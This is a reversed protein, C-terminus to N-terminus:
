NRKQNQNYWSMWPEKSKGLDAGVIERLLRVAEDKTAADPHDLQQVLLPVAEKFKHHELFGMALWSAWPGSREWAYWRPYLPYVKQFYALDEARPYNNLGQQICIGAQPGYSEEASQWESMSALLIAHAKPSNIKALACLATQWENLARSQEPMTSNFRYDSLTPRAKEVLGNLFPVCDPDRTDGMAAALMFRRDDPQAALDRLTKGAIPGTAALSKLVERWYWGNQSDALFPRLGEIRKQPDSNNLAALYRGRKELAASIVRDLDQPTKAQRDQTLGYPGPNMIQYYGLVREDYLWKLGSGEGTVEWSDPRNRQLFVVASSGTVDHCPQEASMTRDCDAIFTLDISTTFDVRAGPASQGLIVKEVTVYGKEVRGQVVLESKLVVYDIPWHELIRASATQIRAMVVFIVFVFQSIRRFWIM